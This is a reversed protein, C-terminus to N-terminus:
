TRRTSRPASRTTSSTSPTPSTADRVAVPSRGGAHRRAHRGRRRLDLVRHARGAPDLHHRPRTALRTTGLRNVGPEIALALFLSVLLLVLLTSLRQFVHRFTFTLVYGAWFVVIAPIVWRPMSWDTSRSDIPRGSADLLGQAKEDREDGSSASTSSNQQCTRLTSVTGHCCSAITLDHSPACTRSRTTPGSESARREASNEWSSAPHNSGPDGIVRTCPSADINM